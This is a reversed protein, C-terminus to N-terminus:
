YNRLKKDRLNMIPKEYFYYLVISLFFTTFLYIIILMYHPLQIQFYNIYYKLLFAVISYHLLYLSYSIKSIFTIPKLFITNTKKYYIFVPLVLAFTLSSLTFYFINFYFSSSFLDIEMVNFVFFQLFFLHISIIFLYVAYKKLITKYYYHFWAIIFGIFIADVRYIVLSKLNINWDNMSDLVNNKYFFYRWLHLLLIILFSVIIFGNKKNKNFLNSFLLLLIPAFLYAWEEISLSWSETFFTINYSSFNQLFFFYKWVNSVDFEFYIAIIINILLVLYYNPLTRFWRRKIFIFVNSLKFDTKIFQKLLITGILFGSLVFFLEVGSYGILSCIAIFTPNTNDILYHIHSFLVLLIAITRVVDLGFIRENNKKEVIM